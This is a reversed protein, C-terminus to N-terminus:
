KGILGKFFGVAGDFGGRIKDLFSVKEKAPEKDDVVKATGGEKVNANPITNDIENNTIDINSDGAKEYLLFPQPLVASLEFSVKGAEDLSVNDISFGSIKTGDVVEGRLVDSQYALSTYGPAIGNMKILFGSINKDSIKNDDVTAKELTLKDFFISGLTVDELFGFIRSPAVHKSLLSKTNNIKSQLEKADKIAGTPDAKEKEVKLEEAKVEIGSKFNINYLYLGGYAALTIFFLAFSLFLLLSMPRSSRDLRRSLPKKPIFSIKTNGKDM